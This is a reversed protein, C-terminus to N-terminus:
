IKFCEIIKNFTKNTVHNIQSPNITKFENLSLSIKQNIEDEDDFEGDVGFPANLVDSIYECLYYYEVRKSVFEINNYTTKLSYYKKGLCKIPKVVVGYEELAERAAAEKIREGSEVGGGPLMFKIKGNKKNINKLLLIKNDKLIIARAKVYLKKQKFLEYALKNKKDEYEKNM